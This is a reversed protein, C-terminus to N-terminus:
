ATENYNETLITGVPVRVSECYRYRNLIYIHVYQDISLSPNTRQETEKNNRRRGRQRSFRNKRIVGGTSSRVMSHSVLKNQSETFRETLRDDEYKRLEIIATYQTGALESRRTTGYVRLM